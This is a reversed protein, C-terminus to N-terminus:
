GNIVLKVIEVMKKMQNVDLYEFRGHYNFGGTGLNPCPFDHFMTLEAGDTGGRVPYYVHPYHLADYADTVRRLIEPHEDMVIKMNKYQLKIDMKVTGAGYRDNLRKEVLRAYDEMALLRNMDHERLIYAMEAKEETGELHLLHFFGERDETDEPRMFEPLANHFKIAVNLANIMKDKASGPHISRGRVSVKMSAANFNEINIARYDGGDVTYGYKSILSDVDIHSAGVGIEEDTSFVAEVGGHPKDSHILEDIATMIIAIGAKDDAGLLTRGDTVILDDGVQEKLSPFEKVTMVTDENLRIDRGDYHEILRPHVDKGSAAESTDMHANLMIPDKGNTSPFYGYVTGFKNMRVNQAGMEVLERQLEEALKYILPNSAKEPDTKAEYSTTEYSVYKYFRELLTMKETEEERDKIRIRESEPHM